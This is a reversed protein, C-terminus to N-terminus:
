HQSRAKEDDRGMLMWGKAPESGSDTIIVADIKPLEAMHQRIDIVDPLM